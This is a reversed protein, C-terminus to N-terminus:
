RDIRFLDASLGDCLFKGKSTTTLTDQVLQLLGSDLHPQAQKQVYDLYDSGFQHEVQLLSVGWITRLGTMIYENYRDQMSLIESGSPLVGKEISKIYKANNSVNWSRTQGDFSHASPGIGM